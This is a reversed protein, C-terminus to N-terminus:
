RVDSGFGGVEQQLSSKLGLWDLLESDLKTLPNRGDLHLVGLGHGREGTGPERERGFIQVAAQSERGGQLLLLGEALLSM